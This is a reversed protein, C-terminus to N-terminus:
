SYEPIPSDSEYCLEILAVNKKQLPEVHLLCHKITGPRLRTKTGLKGARRGNAKQNVKEIAGRKSRVNFNIRM